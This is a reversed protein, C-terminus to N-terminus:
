NPLHWKHSSNLSLHCFKEQTATIAWIYFYQISFMSKPSYCPSQNYTGVSTITLTLSHLHHLKLPFFGVTEWFVGMNWSTWGEPFSMNEVAGTEVGGGWLTFPLTFLFTITCKRAQINRGSICFCLWLTLYHNKLSPVLHSPSPNKDDKNHISWPLLSPSQLQM